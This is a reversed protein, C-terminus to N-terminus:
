LEKVAAWYFPCGADTIWIEVEMRSLAVNEASELQPSGFVDTKSINKRNPPNGKFLPRPDKFFSHPLQPLFPADGM